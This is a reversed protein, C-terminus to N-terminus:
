YRRLRIDLWFVVKCLKKAVKTVWPYVEKPVVGGKIENVFEYGTGAEKPELRLYVHGYQRAVVLNSLTNISQKSPKELQREILLKHNVLKLEVGFSELCEILSLKLTCNVWVQFSLKAVKKM